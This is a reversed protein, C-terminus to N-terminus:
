KGGEATFSLPLAFSYAQIGSPKLVIGHPQDARALSREFGSDLLAFFLALSCQSLALHIRHKPLLALGSLGVEEQRREAELGWEMQIEAYFVLGKADAKAWMTHLSDTNQSEARLEQSRTVSAFNMSMLGQFFNRHFFWFGLLITLPALFVSFQTWWQHGLIFWWAKM